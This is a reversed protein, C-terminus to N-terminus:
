SERADTPDWRVPHSDPPPTRVLLNGDRDWQRRVLRGYFPSLSWECVGGPHTLSVGIQIMGQNARTADIRVDWMSRGHLRLPMGYARRWHGDVAERLGRGGSRIVVDEETSRPGWRLSHLQDKAIERVSLMCERLAKCTWSLWQVEHMDPSPVLLQLAIQVLLEEPLHLLRSDQDDRMTDVLSTPQVPLKQSLGVL